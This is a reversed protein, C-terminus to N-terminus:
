GSGLGLAITGVFHAVEPSGPVGDVALTGSGTAGAFHGTGGVVTYTGRAHIAPDPPPTTLQYAFAISDGNTSTLVGHGTLHGTFDVCEDDVWTGKSGIHTGSAVGTAHILVGCTDFGVVGSILDVTVDFQAGAGHDAGRAPTAGAFAACAVCAALGYWVRRAM